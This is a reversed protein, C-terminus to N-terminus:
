TRLAARARRVAMPGHRSCLHHCGSVDRAVNMDTGSMVGEPPGGHADEDSARDPEHATPQLAFEVGITVVHDRRRSRVLKVNRVTVAQNAPERIRTNGIAHDMQGSHGESRVRVVIWRLREAHVDGPRNRHELRQAAEPDPRGHEDASGGIHIARGPRLVQREGLLSREARHQWVRDGLRCLLCYGDLRSHAVPEGDNHRPREVM